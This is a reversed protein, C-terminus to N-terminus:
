VTDNRSFGYSPFSTRKLRRRSPNQVWMQALTRKFSLTRRACIFRFKQMLPQYKIEGEHSLFFDDIIVGSIQCGASGARNQSPESDHRRQSFDYSPFLTGTRHNKASLSPNSGETCQQVGSKSDPGNYGSRYREVNPASATLKLIIDCQKHFHM